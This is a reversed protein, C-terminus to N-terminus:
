VVEDRQEGGGEPEGSMNEINSRQPSHRMGSAVRQVGDLYVWRTGTLMGGGM